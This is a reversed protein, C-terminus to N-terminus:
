DTTYFFLCTSKKLGVSSGDWNIVLLPQEWGTKYSLSYNSNQEMLMMGSVIQQTRNPLTILSISNKVLGLQEDAAKASNNLWFTDINNKIVATKQLM